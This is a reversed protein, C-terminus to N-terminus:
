LKCVLLPVPGWYTLRINESGCFPCPKLESM